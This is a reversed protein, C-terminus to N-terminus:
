RSNQRAHILRQFEEGRHVYDRFMDFSACGPSLLIADGIKAVSIAGEVAAELSPYCTVPVHSDIQQKITAAAGGIACVCKVKNSFPEIWATYPFGKDVGGAILILPGEVSEVARIVADINTGKSDDYYRIGDAELIYEIRHPPKCFSEFASLCSEICLDQEACLAYAAMFNELDHSRRHRLSLPLLCVRKGERYLAHLDTYIFSHPSYGYLRVGSARHCLYGYQQWASENIYLFADEKLARELQYKAQAYGELSEYRDLHDPTINLILGASLCRSHLTEIQYSSLELIIQEDPTLQGLERTLPIGVNGLSRARKGGQNLMHAVLLTVTTKGNTGTIGYLPSTAYRCGLEIEGIVPIDRKRAELLLPHSPFIGPSVVLCGYSTITDATVQKRIKLGRQVLCEVEASGNLVSEDCDTGHVEVGQSLLLHAAARGSVGLGVILYPSSLPSRM